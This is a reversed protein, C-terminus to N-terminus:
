QATGSDAGGISQTGIWRAIHVATDGWSREDIPTFCPPWAITQGAREELVVLAGTDLWGGEAAAALASEGLGKSYPPDALVLGFRERPLAPGLSTADRRYIRTQGTLGLAEINRRILARAGADEEVFLCFDAGRSIAELGLAGTGAFLDLARCGVIDFGNIGHALINFLAERVRDSTPRIRSDEPTALARGRYTGAVIRM